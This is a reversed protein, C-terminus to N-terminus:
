YIRVLVNYVYLDKKDPHKSSCSIHLMLKYCWTYLSLFQWIQSTHYHTPYSHNQGISYLSSSKLLNLVSNLQLNNFVWPSFQINIYYQKWETSHFIHHSQISNQSVTERTITKSILVMMNPQHDDDKSIFLENVHM